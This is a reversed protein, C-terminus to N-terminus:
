GESSVKRKRCINIIEHIIIVKFLNFADNLAAFCRNAIYVKDPNDNGKVKDPHVLMMALRYSKKVDNATMLKDM